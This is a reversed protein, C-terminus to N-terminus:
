ATLKAFNELLIKLRDYRAVTEYYLWELYLPKQLEHAVTTAFVFCTESNGQDRPKGIRKSLVIIEDM